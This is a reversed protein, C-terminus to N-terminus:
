FIYYLPKTILDAVKKILNFDIKNNDKSKKSSINNVIAM